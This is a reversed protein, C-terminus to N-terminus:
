GEDKGGATEPLEWDLRLRGDQEQVWVMISPIYVGEPVAPFTPHSVVITFAEDSWDSIFIREVKAGPPFQLLDRLMENSLEIRAIRRTKEIM